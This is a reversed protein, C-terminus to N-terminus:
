ALSGKNVWITKPNLSRTSCLINATIAIVATATKKARFNKKLDFIPLRAKSLKM